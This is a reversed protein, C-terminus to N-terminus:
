LGLTHHVRYTTIVTLGNDGAANGAIEGSLGALALNKNVVDAIADIADIKAMATTMSDATLTIFGTMEITQSAAAASGGDYEVALNDTSETFANTGGYDLIVIASVFELLKNAGPAAVLQYPSAVLAKVEASNLDVIVTNLNSCQWDGDAELTGKAVGNVQFIHTGAANTSDYTLSPTAGYACTIDAMQTASSNRFTIGSTGSSDTPFFEITPSADRFAITKGTSTGTEMITTRDGSDSYGTFYGSTRSEKIDTDNARSTIVIFDPESSAEDYVNAWITTNEAKDVFIAKEDADVLFYNHLIRCDKVANTAVTGDGVCLSNPGTSEFWCNTITPGYVDHGDVSGLIIGGSTCNDITCRDFRVAYGGNVLAAYANGVFLCKEITTANNAVSATEKNLVIGNTGSRIDCDSITTVLASTLDIGTGCDQIYCRQITTIDALNLTIGYTATDDGDIRIDSITTYEAGNSVAIAANATTCNITAVWRGGKPGCLGVGSAQITITGSTTYTGAPLYVQGGIVEAADVAAQIATTADVVGTKDAGYTASTVDYFWGHKGTQTSATTFDHEEDFASELAANNAQIDLYLLDFRRTDAPKDKDWVGYVMGVCLALLCIFALIIFLIVRDKQYRM